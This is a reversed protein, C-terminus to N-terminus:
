GVAEVRPLALRSGMWLVTVVEEGGAGLELKIGKLKDGGWPWLPREVVCRIM